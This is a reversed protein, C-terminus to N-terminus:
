AGLRRQRRGKRSHIVNAVREFPVYFRRYRVPLRAAEGVAIEAEIAQEVRRALDADHCFLDVEEYARHSLSTFNTSGIDVWEGDGVIAKGHVMRPHFVIRLNPPSGTRRLLNACTALNLDGLVNARAATLITVSVGRKVARVLAETCAKDGFYAMAITLRRRASELLALRDDALASGHRPRDLGQPATAKFSHLLFDFPRQPDFPVGREYRDALRAAAGGGTIEVMFDVNALRFDDGIGMGGLIVREADFVYLKAHDFRKEDRFVKVNEHALLADATSSPRQRLSGWRGYVTMLFWAQVRAELGVSKHFFSQNTGEVYEYAVGVRDKHITVRVGRNAARLLASGIMEGTEDDRWEFCRVDIRRRAEDIRQVIRSFAARGGVLLDFTPKSEIELHPRWEAPFGPVPEVRDRQRLEGEGLSTTTPPSPFGGLTGSRDLLYSKTSM